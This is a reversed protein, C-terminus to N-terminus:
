TLVMSPCEMTKKKQISVVHAIYIDANHVIRSNL